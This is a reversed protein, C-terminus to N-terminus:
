TTGASTTARQRMCNWDRNRLSVLAIVVGLVGGALVDLAVHQKTAITSYVIGLCWLANIILTPRQAGMEICLRHLWLASFVASAVHLSPCANGSADIGRLMGFGPHNDWDILTSPVATPFVLFCAMGILCVAGIAIGYQVLERWSVLFAPPLSAYFWLSAYLPLAAPQVM